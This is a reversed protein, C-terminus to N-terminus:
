RGGSADGVVQKEAALLIRHMEKADEAARLEALVETHHCMMCLRALVHLHIRDDQCCILFFLDTTEGDPAGFLIQGATRGLAIFSDVFMYPEHHKPHLLAFGGPLATPCLKERETLSEQLEGADCVLGTEDGLRAMEAIAGAKSRCSLGTRIWEPRTMTDLITASPSLDRWVATTRRHYDRLGADNMGLVRRSAWEDIDCHRFALRKGQRECPVEGRRALEELATEPMQLYEAAEGLSFMRFPM